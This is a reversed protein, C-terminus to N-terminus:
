GALCQPASPRGRAQPWVAHPRSASTQPQFSSQPNFLRLLAIGHVRHNSSVSPTCKVTRGHHLNLGTRLVLGIDDREAWWGSATVAGVAIGRGKRGGLRQVEM